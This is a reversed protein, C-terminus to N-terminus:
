FISSESKLSTVLLELMNQSTLGEEEVEAETEAELLLLLLLLLQQQIQFRYSQLRGFAFDRRDKKEEM